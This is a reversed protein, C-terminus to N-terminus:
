GPDTAAPSCRSRPRRSARERRTWARASRPSPRRRGPRDPVRRGVAREQHDRLDPRDPGDPGLRGPRHRRDREAVALDPRQGREDAVDPPQHGAQLRGEASVPRLLRPQRPLLDLGQLHGRPVERRDRRQHGHVAVERQRLDHGPADGHRGQQLRHHQHRGAHVDQRDGPEDGRPGPRVRQLDDGRLRRDPRDADPVHRVAAQRHHRRGPEGPRHGAKKLDAYLEPENGGLWTGVKKGKLDAISNINNSKFSIELTGSRQYIQAIDM